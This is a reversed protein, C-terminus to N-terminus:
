GHDERRRFTACLKPTGNLRRTDNMRIGILMLNKISDTALAEVYDAWVQLM